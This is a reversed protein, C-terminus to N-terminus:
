SDIVIDRARKLKAVAAQNAFGLRDATRDCAQRAFLAHLSRVDAPHAPSHRCKRQLDAFSRRLRSLRHPAHVPHIAQLAVNVIRRPKVIQKAPIAHDRVQPGGVARVHKFDAAAGGSVKHVGGAKVRVCLEEADVDRGLHQRGGDSGNRPGAKGAPDLDRM